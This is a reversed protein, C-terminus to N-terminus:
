LNLLSNFLDSVIKILKGSAQYAQQYRLLNAAEEDLNVGSVSQQSETAQRLFGEEAKASLNMENTKIGVSSVLQNYAVGYSAAGNNMTSKTNLKAMLLANRNDGVGTFPANGAALKSGDSILSKFNLAGATTPEILFSDGVSMMGTPIQFSVGDIVQPMTGYTTEVGDDLRKIKYNSGDFKLEYNSATIKSTDTIAAAVVATGTNNTNAVVIPSSTSFLDQGAVGKADTGAKNQTNYNDALVIAIQGIQNQISDLSKSRFAFLGGLQGGTINQEGMLLTKGSTNTYAVDIKSSDSPSAIAKLGFTAENLVLPQGNGIFVNYASTISNNTNNQRVVTTNIEKSLNTVLLDRQDLLANPSYGSATSAADIKVNLDAIQKAYSNISDVTNSVQTNLDSKAQDLNAALGNFRSQLSNTTSVFGQRAASDSPNSSVASISNFFDAFAPTLGASGDGLLNDISSLQAQQVNANGVNSQAKNVQESLLSDYYRKIDNVKTGQGIFGFGFNQDKAPSQMAEQRTYGPTSANAINNGTVSLGIQAANLGSIGVNLINSSM